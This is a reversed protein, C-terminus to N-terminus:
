VAKAKGKDERAPVQLWPDQLLEKASPRDESNWQLMRRVFALFMASQEEGQVQCELAALIKDDVYRAFKFSGINKICTLNTEWFRSRSPLVYFVM